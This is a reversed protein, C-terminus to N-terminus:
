KAKALFRVIRAGLRIMRELMPRPVNKMQDYWGTMREIFTAMEAIRRKVDPPTESDANANASVAKLLDLSPDIERKKREDIITRVIDWPDTKAVYRNRRDGVVHVLSVLRFAQLEDLSNSVNSRAISLTEAIDEATLPRGVLWLLAHIQAVSRNVGWRAGMEGWHLMVKSMAPSLHPAEDQDLLAPAPPM